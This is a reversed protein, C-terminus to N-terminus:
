RGLTVLPFGNDDIAQLAWMTFSKNASGDWITFTGPANQNMWFYYIQGKMGTMPYVGPYAYTQGNLMGDQFPYSLVGTVPNTYGTLAAQDSLYPKLANEFNTTNAFTKVWTMGNGDQYYREIAQHIDKAREVVKQFKNQKMLHVGTTAVTASVAVSVGIAMAVEAISLGRQRMTM